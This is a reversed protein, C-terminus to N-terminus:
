QRDSITKYFSSVFEKQFKEKSNKTSHQLEQLICMWYVHIKFILIWYGYISSVIILRRKSTIVQIQEIIQKYCGNNNNEFLLPTAADNFYCWSTERAITPDRKTQSLYTDSQIWVRQWPIKAEIITHFIRTTQNGKSLVFFTIPTYKM